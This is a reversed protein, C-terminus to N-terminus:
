HRMPVEHEIAHDPLLSGASPDPPFGRIETQPRKEDQKQHGRHHTSLQVRIIRHFSDYDAAM